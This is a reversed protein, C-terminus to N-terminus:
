PRAGPLSDLSIISREAAAEVPLPVAFYPLRMRAAHRRTSDSLRRYRDAASEQAALAEELDHLLLNRREVRDNFADLERRYIGYLGPSLRDDVAYRGFREVRKLAEALASDEEALSHRLTDARLQAVFLEVGVDVVDERLDFLERREDALVHWNWLGSGAKFLLIVAVVGLLGRIRERHTM